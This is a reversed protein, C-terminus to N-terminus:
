RSMSLDNIFGESVGTSVGEFVRDSDQDAIRKKYEEKSLTAVGKLREEFVKQMEDLGDVLPARYFDYDQHMQIATTLLAAIRDDTLTEIEKDMVQGFAQQTVPLYGTSSVFRLNQEVATFWKLFIGAAYEKEPTSKMVCLGSGRQMAIKKGGEFVPYPLIAYEVPETTNDEYTIIPSFFLVGATSGTSCVVDGTKALDSGYGNFIAVQGRVAPPYYSDWIRSFVPSSLNLTGDKIFDEGLQKYGVQALNFLSDPVYFIKGDNKIHATQDDTWRYYKEATELIGEFTELDALSAGIEKAFRDFLTKNVFLVETSKAFPFVLLKGDARGEEVFQPVYASLEEKTLLTGIDVLLDKKALILATKPYATSLNPLEPAGPEDNAAMTLKNHLDASSSISTVNLVIGEEAGVTANFEDVMVDMTAKMQAGFNHWITLTVPNQPDLKKTNQCGTVLLMLSLACVLGTQFYRRRKGQMQMM